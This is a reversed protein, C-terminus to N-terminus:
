PTHSGERIRDLSGQFIGTLRNLRALVEESAEIKHDLAHIEVLLHDAESTEGHELLIERVLELKARELCYEDLRSGEIVEQDHYEDVLEQLAAARDM